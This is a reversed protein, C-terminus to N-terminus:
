AKGTAQDELEAWFEIEFDNDKRTQTLTSRWGVEMEM